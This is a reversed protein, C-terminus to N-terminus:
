RPKAILCDIMARAANSLTRARHTVIGLQRHITVGEIRLVRMDADILTEPLASWGLGIKVLMKLVELYNTALGVNIHAREAGLANLILERTYTGPAPLVATHQVLAQAKIRRRTALPHGAGVVFQLPDDWVTRCELQPAPNTPLTVIALELEGQAVARCGAESDLFRLDLQVQPYRDHFKRLAPPLRHLGIHHSTGLSLKGNIEESLNAIRRKAEAVENLIARAQELLVVGAPTLQVRRGIRDFLRTNVAQELNSIRKSIAPQTLHVRVAARSFSAAEAVAVFAQLTSIDM